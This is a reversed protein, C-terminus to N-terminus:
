KRAFSPSVFCEVTVAEDAVLARATSLARAVDRPDEVVVDVGNGGCYVHCTDLNMAEQLRSELQRCQVADLRDVVM